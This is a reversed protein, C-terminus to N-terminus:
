IFEISDGDKLFVIAKKFAPTAGKTGRVIKRKPKVNVINVKIPQVNYIEEMAKKVETKNARRSINFTYSNGGSQTSAKETIRPRILVNSYREKKGKKVKGSKRVTETKSVVRPEKKGVSVSTEPETKVPEKKEKKKRKLIDLLAM